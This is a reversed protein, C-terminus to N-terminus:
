AQKTAKFKSKARMIRQENYRHVFPLNKLVLTLLIGKRNKMVASALAPSIVTPPGQLAYM